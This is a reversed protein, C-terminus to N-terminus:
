GVKKAVSALFGKLYYDYGYMHQLVFRPIPSKIRGVETLSLKTGTGSPEAVFTWMGSFPGNDDIITQTLERGLTVERRSVVFSNRGMFQRFHPLGNKEGLAEVKTIGSAWTPYREIDAILAWVKAPDAKLTVSSTATHEVPIKSGLIYVVVAAIVILAVVGGAIYLAILM